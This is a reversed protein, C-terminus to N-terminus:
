GGFNKSLHERLAANIRTQWGKGGEKFHDIIDVDLRITTLQKTPALQKGRRKIVAQLEPFESVPKARKFFSDGLEVVDGDKDYKNSSM